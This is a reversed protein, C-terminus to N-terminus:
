RSLIRNKLLMKEFVDPPLILTHVVSTDELHVELWTFQKEIEREWRFPVGEIFVYTLRIDREVIHQRIKQVCRRLDNNTIDNARILFINASDALFQM